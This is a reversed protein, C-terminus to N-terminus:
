SASRSFLVTVFPLSLRSLATGLALFRIGPGFIVRIILLLKKSSGTGVQVHMLGHIYWGSGVLVLVLWYWYWGSGVLVLVSSGTGVQVHMLGHINRPNRGFTTSLDAKLLGKLTGFKLGIRARM